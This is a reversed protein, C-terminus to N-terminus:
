APGFIQNVIAVFRQAYTHNALARDHGAAAISERADDHRLYYRIKEILDDIDMYIALERGIEFHRELDEAYYTLQFGGCGCLEFQRAKLQECDKASKLLLKIARPSSCLYRLDWHNSNSLNLNIRSQNFIEVMQEFTVRGGPSRNGWRKVEIGARRLRRFVWDRYPHSGGVFTVDHIKPLDRKACVFHNYGFPSYLVNTFGRDRYRRLTGTRPTTFYSFRPAWREAFESRWDDDFFYCLTTTHQKLKEIMQPLFEEGFLPFIVMDPKAAQVATLLANNMVEQGQERIIKYFDFFQVDTFLEKLPLFLNNYDYSLGRQPQGYDYYLGVFLVKLSRQSVVPPNAALEALVRTM